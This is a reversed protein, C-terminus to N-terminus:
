MYMYMCYVHVFVVVHINRVIYALEQDDEPIEINDGHAEKVRASFRKAQLM